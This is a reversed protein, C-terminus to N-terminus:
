EFICHAATVAYRDSIIVTTCTGFGGAEVQSELIEMTAEDLEKKPQNSGCVIFFFIACVHNTFNDPEYWKFLADLSSTLM